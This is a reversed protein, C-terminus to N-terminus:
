TITKRAAIRGFLALLAGALSAAEVALDALRSQDDVSFTWGAMGGLSAAIAILAGWVARSAYWPKQDTM